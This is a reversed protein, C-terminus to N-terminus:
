QLFAWYGKGEKGVSIREYIGNKGLSFLLTSATREQGVLGSGPVLRWGKKSSYTNSCEEKERRADDIEVSRGASADLVGAECPMLYARWQWPDEGDPDYVWFADEEGALESAYLKRDFPNGVMNRGKQIDFEVGNTRNVPEFVADGTLDGPYTYWWYYTVYAVNEIIDSTLDLYDFYRRDVSESVHGYDKRTGDYFQFENRLVGSTDELEETGFVALRIEMLEEPSGSSIKLPFHCKDPRFTINIAASYGSKLGKITRYISELWGFTENEIRNYERYSVEGANYLEYIRRYEQFKEKNIVKKIISNNYDFDDERIEGTTVPSVLDSIKNYQEQLRFDQFGPYASEIMKLEQSYRTKLDLRGVIFYAGERVYYDLLGIIEPPADYGKQELWNVLEKTSDADLVVLDVIDFNVEQHVTVRGAGYYSRYELSYYAMEMM